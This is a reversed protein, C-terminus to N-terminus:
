GLFEGLGIVEARVNAGSWSIEVGDSGFKGCRM